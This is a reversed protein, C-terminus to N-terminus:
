CQTEFGAARESRLETVKLLSNEESSPVHVSEGNLLTAPWLALIQLSTPVTWKAMQHGTNISSGCINRSQHCTAHPLAFRRGWTDRGNHEHIWLVRWRWEANFSCPLTDVIVHPWNCFLYSAVLSPGQRRCHPNIIIAYPSSVVSDDDRDM